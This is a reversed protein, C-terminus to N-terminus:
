GGSYYTAELVASCSQVRMLSVAAVSGSYEATMFVFYKDTKKDHGACANISVDKKPDDSEWLPDLGTVAPDAAGAKERQPTEAM